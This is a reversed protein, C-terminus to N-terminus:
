REITLLASNILRLSTTLTGDPYYADWSKEEPDFKSYGIIDLVQFAKPFKNDIEVKYIISPQDLYSDNKDNKQNVEILLYFPESNREPLIYDRPDFSSNPTAGSIADLEEDNEQPGESKAKAKEYEEVKWAWYPLEAQTKSTYLSKIHYSSQNELWIAIKPPSKTDYNKGARVELKLKFNEAPSYHFIMGDDKMEFRELAAGLNNSLGLIMKIPKPQWIFLATLLTVFLLSGITYRSKLSKKMGKFNQKVHLYILGIFVFGMLSHLGTVLISFPRFFALLGSIVIVTFTMAVLVTVIKKKAKL